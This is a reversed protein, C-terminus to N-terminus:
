VVIRLQDGDLEMRPLVPTIVREAGLAAAVDPYGALDTLVAATPPLMRLRGALAQEPRIWLRTDAETGAVRAVQREPLAAAFFRTDFRKPEVEPTIWHAMPVLLDARLLLERRRLLGSFPERGAELAEREAEWEPGSVDPVMETASPGALLVGSEEFTERVAACVLAHASARDTGFRAAWWDAAPGVWGLALTAAPRAPAPELEGALLARVRDPLSSSTTM